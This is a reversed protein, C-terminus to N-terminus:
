QSFRAKRANAIMRDEGYLAPARPYLKAFHGVAANIIDVKSSGLPSTAIAELYAQEADLKVSQEVVNLQDYPVQPHLYQAMEGYVKFRLAGDMTWRCQAVAVMLRHAPHIGANSYVKEILMRQKETLSTVQLERQIADYPAPTMVPMPAVYDASKSKPDELFEEIANSIAQNPALDTSRMPNRTVPSVANGDALWKEIADKEFTNGERDIVPTKMLEHTLPCIFAEPVSDKFEFFVSISM